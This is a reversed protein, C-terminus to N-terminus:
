GVALSCVPRVIPVGTAPPLASWTADANEARTTSGAPRSTFSPPM